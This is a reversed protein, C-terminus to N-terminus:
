IESAIFVKEGNDLSRPFIKSFILPHIFCLPILLHGLERTVSSQGFSEQEAICEESLESFM